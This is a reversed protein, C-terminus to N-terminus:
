RLYGGHAPGYRDILDQMAPAADLHFDMLGHDRMRLLTSYDAAAKTPATSRQENFISDFADAYKLPDRERMLSLSTGFDPRTVAMVHSDPKGSEFPVTLDSLSPLPYSGRPHSHLDFVPNDPTADGLWHMMKQLDAGQPGPVYSDFGYQLPLREKGFGIQGFENLDNAGRAAGQVNELLSKYKNLLALLESM